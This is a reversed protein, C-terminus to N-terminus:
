YELGKRVVIRRQGWFVGWNGIDSRGQFWIEKEPANKEPWCVVLLQKPGSRSFLTPASAIWLTIWTTKGNNSDVLSVTCQRPLLASKEEENAAKKKWYHLIINVISPEEKELYDIFFIGQVDWFKSALVKGASTPMKPKKPCCEGTATWEALQQNSEPTLYHTWTEDTTVYKRLFKKKNRKFLQLCHESDDICQRKQDVKLLRPVWKSYLKRMPLHEDLIIFVSGESIKLEEAIGRLKLKRDALVLKHFKKTNEPVVASNPHDSREVDNTDTRSRKFDAYWRKVTSESPASDSYKDLWQKAQVTNKGM